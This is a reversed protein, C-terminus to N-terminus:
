TRWEVLEKSALVEWSGTAAERWTAGNPTVHDIKEGRLKKVIGINKKHFKTTRLTLTGVEM